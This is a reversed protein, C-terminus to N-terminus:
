LRFVLCIFIAVILEQKNPYFIEQFYGNIKQEVIYLKKFGYEVKIIFFGIRM